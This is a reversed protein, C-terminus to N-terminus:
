GTDGLGLAQEVRRVATGVQDHEWIRVVNWGADHLLRDTDRDRRVNAALKKRWWQSNSGGSRRGHEPCGHWFCGDLFVALRRGPFAIDIRRRPAGPVPWQLRYRHGRRYLAKRLALEPATDRRAQREMRRRVAPTSAPPYPRPSRVEMAPEDDRSPTSGM